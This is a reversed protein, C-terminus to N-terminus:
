ARSCALFRKRSPSSLLERQGTLHGRERYLCLTVFRPPTDSVSASAQVPALRAFSLLYSLTNTGIACYLLVHPQAKAITERAVGVDAASGIDAAEGALLLEYWACKRSATAPKIIENCVDATTLM